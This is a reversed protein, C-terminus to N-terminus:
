NFRLIPTRPVPPLVGAGAAMFRLSDEINAVGVTMRGGEANDSALLLSFRSAGAAVVRPNVLVVRVFTVAAGVATLAVRTSPEMPGGGVRVTRAGTEAVDALSAREGEPVGGVATEVTLPLGIDTTPLGDDTTLRRAEISRDEAVGVARVFGLAAAM